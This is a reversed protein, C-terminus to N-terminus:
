VQDFEPQDSDKAERLHTFLANVEQTPLMRHLDFLQIVDTSQMLTAPRDHLDDLKVAASPLLPQKSTVTEVVHEALLGLIDPRGDALTYDVLIIRTSIKLASSKGTALRCLDVVPILAGRYNMLGAAFDPASPIRTLAVRPVVKRVQRTAMAFHEEGIKFLLLLM